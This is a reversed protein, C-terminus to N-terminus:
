PATPLTGLPSRVGYYGAGRITRNPLAWGGAKRWARWLFCKGSRAGHLLLCGELALCFGLKISGILLKYKCIINARHM